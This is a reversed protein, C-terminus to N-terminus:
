NLGIFLALRQRRVGAVVGTLNNNRTSNTIYVGVVDGIDIYIFIYSNTQEHGLIESLIEGIENCNQCL